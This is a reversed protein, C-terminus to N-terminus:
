RDTFSQLMIPAGGLFTLSVEKVSMIAPYLDKFKLVWFSPLRLAHVRWRDYTLLVIKKYLANGQWRDTYTQFM